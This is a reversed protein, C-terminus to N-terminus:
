PMVANPKTASATVSIAAAAARRGARSVATPAAATTATASQTRPLRTARSCCPHHSHAASVNVARTIEERRGSGRLDVGGRTGSIRDRGLVDEM